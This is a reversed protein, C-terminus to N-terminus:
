SSLIGLERARGVAEERSGVRLKFFINKVHTKVTNMSVYLEAGIERQSLDTALLRLIDLERDSLGEADRPGAPGPGGTLRGVLRGPDPCSAALAEAESRARRAGAADGARARAASLVRLCEAEEIAGAGRRALELAREAAALADAASARRGAEAAAALHRTLGVFHEDLGPDRRTLADAARLWEVAGARDGAEAAALSLYGLAYLEALRNGDGRASRLADQLEREADQGRWYAVAGAVVAAVARWFPDEGGDRTGQLWRAASGLDGRKFAHVARLLGAWRRHEDTGGREAVELMAPLAELRGTDLAIWARALWLQPDRGVQEPPLAALWGSVTALEGRNFFSRWHEAVLPGGGGAALAHRIADGPLGARAFWGSAREHLAPAAGPLEADLRRALTERFLHHYRYWRGAADLPVIFLGADALERLRVASDHAGIVADCLEGSLRDLVATRLLFSRESPAQADLVEEGLYDAIHGSGAAEVLVGRPRDRLSLGALQLGAAWGETRLQLDALQEASVDAGLAALMAAADDDTFRLDPGRVEALEGRARLRALGLPPDRRTTVAVHLTSPAREVFAALSRLAEPDEIAHLDDLVLVARRDADDVLANLLLPVVVKTLSAGRARLASRARAGFGDGHVRELAGIVGDWFRVPDEDEPDLSLWAFARGEGPWRAWQAVLTTKGSGAPASVLTLRADAAALRALLDDRAVLGARLRPVELKTAALVEVEV